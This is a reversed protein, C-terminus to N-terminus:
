YTYYISYYGLFIEKKLDVKMNSCPSASYGCASVKYYYTFVGDNNIVKLYKGNDRPDYMSPVISQTKDDFIRNVNKVCILSVFIIIFFTFFNYYKKIKIFDIHRIFIFYSSLIIFTYILSIGFRYTPFKLFWLIVFLLNTVYILLFLKDNDKQYNKKLCHTFYFFLFNLIIFIVVPLLKEVIILLHTQSWTSVWNFSKNFEEQNLDKNLNRPWAKAWAEGETSVRKINQDFWITNKLCTKQVPYILCGTIFFNKLLWLSAFIITFIFFKSRFIIFKKKILFYIALPIILTILYFPKILFTFLCIISLKKFNLLTKNKIFFDLLYLIALFYYVHVQADNGYGSYRNFSYLSFILILFTFYSKLRLSDIKFDNKFLKYCYIFFYSTLLGIPILVGSEKFLSNNFFSSIYQFISIHGFRFHINVLGIIMKEDNIIKSYPLHYLLADPTNVNSYILLIYCFLSVCFIKKILKIKNQNFFNLMFSIFFIIIFIINNIILNLPSFFNITLGIFGIFIFGFLGNEEFNKNDHYVFIIKKFLFGCQSLFLCIISIQLFIFFHEIAITM